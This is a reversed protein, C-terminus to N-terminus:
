SEASVTDTTAAVKAVSDCLLGGRRAGRRAADRADPAAAAVARAYATGATPDGLAFLMDARLALADGHQPAAPTISQPSMQRTSGAM